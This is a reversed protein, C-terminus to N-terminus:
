YPGDGRLREILENTVPRGRKPLPRFGCFGDREAAAEVPSANLGKRALESIVAGISSGDRRALERAALLVDDDIAITTRV